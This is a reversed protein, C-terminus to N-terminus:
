KAPTKFPPQPLPRDGPSLPPTLKNDVLTEQQLAGKECKLNTDPFIRNTIDLKAYGKKKEDFEEREIMKLSLLKDRLEWTAVYGRLCATSTM